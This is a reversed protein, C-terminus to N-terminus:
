DYDELKFFEAAFESYPTWMYDDMKQRITMLDKSTNYEDETGLNYVLYINEGEKFGHVTHGAMDRTKGLYNESNIDFM